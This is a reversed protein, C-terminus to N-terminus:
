KIICQQVTTDERFLWVRPYCSIGTISPFLNFSMTDCLEWSCNWDSESILIQPQMDLVIVAVIASAIM